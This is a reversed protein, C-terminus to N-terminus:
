LAEGQECSVGISMRRAVMVAAVCRASEESVRESRLRESVEAATVRLSYGDAVYVGVCMYIMTTKTIPKTFM